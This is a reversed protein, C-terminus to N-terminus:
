TTEKGLEALAQQPTKLHQNQLTMLHHQLAVAVDSGKGFGFANVGSIEIRDCGDTLSVHTPTTHNLVHATLQGCQDLLERLLLFRPDTSTDLNHMVARGFEASARGILASTEVFDDRRYFTVTGGSHHGIPAGPYWTVQGSRLQAGTVADVAGPSETPYPVAQAM